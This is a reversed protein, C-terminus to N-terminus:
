LFDGRILSYTLNIIMTLSLIGSFFIFLNRSTFLYFILQMYATALSSM